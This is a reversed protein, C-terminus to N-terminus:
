FSNQESFIDHLKQEPSIPRRNTGPDAGTSVTWGSAPLTRGSRAATGRELLEWAERKELLTTHHKTVFIWFYFITRSYIRFLWEPFSKHSLFHQVRASATLHFREMLAGPIGFRSADCLLQIYVRILSDNLEVRFTTWFWCGSGRLLDPPVSFDGTEHPCFSSSSFFLSCVPLDVVGSPPPTM